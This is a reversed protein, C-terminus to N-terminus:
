FVLVGPGTRVGALFEDVAALETDRGIIGDTVGARL